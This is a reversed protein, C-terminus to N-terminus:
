VPKSMGNFCITIYDKVVNRITERDSASMGLFSRKPTIYKKVTVWGNSTKFQMFSKKANVIAGFQHRMAYPTTSGWTVGKDTASYQFGTRSAMKGSKVLTLTSRTYAELNTVIEMVRHAPFKSKFNSVRGSPRWKRGSPDLQTYFRDMTSEVMYKGVASWMPRPHQILSLVQKFNQIYLGEPTAKMKLGIIKKESM